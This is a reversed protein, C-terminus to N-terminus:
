EDRKVYGALEAIKDVYSDDASINVRQTASGEALARKDYYTGVTMALERLSIKDDSHGLMRIVRETGLRIVEDAAAIFEENKQRCLKVYEEDDKHDSIIKRVTTYPEGAIRAAEADNNPCAAHAAMIKVETSKDTKRGRGAAM